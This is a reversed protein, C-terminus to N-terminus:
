PFMSFPLPMQICIKQGMNEARAFIGKGDKQSTYLKAKVGLNGM